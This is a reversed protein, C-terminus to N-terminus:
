ALRHGQCRLELLLDTLRQKDHLIPLLLLFVTNLWIFFSTTFLITIRLKDYLFDRLILISLLCHHLLWSQGIDELGTGALLVFLM